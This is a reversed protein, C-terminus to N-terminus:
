PTRRRAASPGGVPPDPSVAALEPEGPLGIVHNHYSGPSDSDVVAPPGPRFGSDSLSAESGAPLGRGAGARRHSAPGPGCDRNDSDDTVM